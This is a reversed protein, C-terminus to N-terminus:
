FRENLEGWPNLSLNREKIGVSISVKAARHMSLVTNM